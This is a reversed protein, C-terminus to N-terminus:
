VYLYLFITVGGAIVVWAEFATRLAPHTSGAEMFHMIIIRLKIFALVIILTGLTKGNLANLQPAVWSLATLSLLTFLVWRLKNDSAIAM